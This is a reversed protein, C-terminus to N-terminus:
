QPYTVWSLRQPPSALVDPTEPVDTQNLPMTTSPFWPPAFGAKATFRRDFYTNGQSISVGHAFSEIRGGVITWTDVSSGSPTAFGCKGHDDCWSSDANIAALSADTELNNNSYPSNLNINGKSTFIGLVSNFDGATQHGGSDYQNAILTDSTDKTVPPHAYILDGTISIDGAAAITMQVYDQVGAKGQGPGTLGTVDGNVYVMTAPSATAGALNQPVGTLNVTNSGSNIITTNAGINTTITTTTSGQKITYTQTLNNSADKGISLSVSADGEVYIGGGTVTYPTVGTPCSTTCFPMFVGSSAGSTPYKNKKVDMLANNMDSHTPAPPTSVGCTSTGEGCGKGDMVAWQQSFDNGPLDALPQSRNLGQQFTPKITQSKYTYNNTPSQKCTSGFWYSVNDNHQGVPDTYIYAGGTGFNWSGNTFVPGTMTGPVLPGKCQNFQDIFIGFAAFSVTHDTKTSTKAQINVVVSGSEKVLVQQLSQARGTTCITYNYRYTYSDNQLKDNQTTTPYGAALQV